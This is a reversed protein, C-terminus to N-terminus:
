AARAKTDYVAGMIANLGDTLLKFKREWATGFRGAKRQIVWQPWSDHMVVDDVETFQELTMSRSAQKYREWARHQAQEQDTVPMQTRGMVSDWIAAIEGFSLNAFRLNRTDVGEPASLDKQTPVNPGCLQARHRDERYRCATRHQDETIWRNALMCDIPNTAMLPDACLAARHALVVPNPPPPKLKGCAYREGDKAPRGASGKPKPFLKKGM